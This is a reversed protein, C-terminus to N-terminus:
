LSPIHDLRVLTSNFGGVRLRFDLERKLDL